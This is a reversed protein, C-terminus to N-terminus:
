PRKLWYSVARLYVDLGHIEKYDNYNEVMAEIMRDRAATQRSLPKRIRRHGGLSQTIQQKIEKEEKKLTEMFRWINPHRTQMARAFKSHWSEVYNNTRAFKNRVAEYVNWIAPEFLPRVARRRGRAPQGRVYVEDLYKWLPRVLPHLTEYLSVFVDVLDTLPLFPLGLLTAVSERVEKHLRHMRDDYISQLGLSAVKRWVSQSFHFLCGFVEADPFIEKIANMSAMEFDVVVREPSLRLGLRRAHEKLHTFIIRYTEETKRSCLVFVM